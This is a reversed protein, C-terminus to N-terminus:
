FKGPGIACDGGKDRLRKRVFARERATSMAAFTSPENVIEEDPWNIGAEMDRRNFDGCWELIDYLLKRGKIQINFTLDDRKYFGDIMYRLEDKTTSVFDEFDTFGEYELIKSEELTFDLWGLIESIDADM